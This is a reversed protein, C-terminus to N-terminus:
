LKAARHYGLQTLKVPIRDKRGGGIILIYTFGMSIMEVYFIPEQFFVDIHM